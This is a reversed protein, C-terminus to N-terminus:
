RMADFTLNENISMANKENTKDVHMQEEVSFSTRYFGVSFNVSICVTQFHLALSLSFKEIVQM